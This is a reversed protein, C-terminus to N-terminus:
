ANRNDQQIEEVRSKVQSLESKWDGPDRRESDRREEERRDPNHVQDHKLRTESRRERAARRDTGRREAGRRDSDWHLHETRRLFAAILMGLVVAGPVILWMPDITLGNM